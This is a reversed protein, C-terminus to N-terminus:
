GFIPNDFSIALPRHTCPRLIRCYNPIWFGWDMQPIIFVYIALKVRGKASRRKGKEALGLQIHLTSAQAKDNSGVVM